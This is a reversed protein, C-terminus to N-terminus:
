KTTSKNEAETVRLYNNLVEKAFYYGREKARYWGMILLIAILHISHNFENQKAQYVILMIWLGFLAVLVGRSFAYSANFEQIRNNTSSGIYSMAIGFLSDLHQDNNFDTQQTRERTLRIRAKQYRSFRIKKMGKGKLLNQSPKGGWSIFLYSETWSAIANIFYGLVYAVAVSALSMGTDLSIDPLWILMVPIFWLFGLILHTVVNYFSFKM